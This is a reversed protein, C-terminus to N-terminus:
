DMGYIKIDSFQAVVKYQSEELLILVGPQNMPGWHNVIFYQIERNEILERRQDARLILYNEADTVSLKDEVLWGFHNETKEVLNVHTHSELLYGPWSSIIQEGPKVHEDLWNSIQRIRSIKWHDVRDIGPVKNGGVSYRYMDIPAVAIYLAIIVPMYKIISPVSQNEDIISIQNNPGALRQYSVYSEILLLWIFPMLACFYQTDSPTPMLNIVVFMGIFYKLFSARPGTMYRRLSVLSIILLLSQMSYMSGRPIRQGLLRLIVRFKQSLDGVMGEDSRLSHFGLNNFLFSSQDILIFYVNPSLAVLVGLGFAVLSLIKHLPPIPVLLVGIFFIPGLGLFMLRIDASLGFLLGSLFLVGLRLGNANYISLFLLVSGFLFLTSIAYTKAVVFWAFVFSSFTYLLVILLALATNRSRKKGYLFLMVGIAFALVVTFLRASLWSAGALYFWAAYIYLLAPMQPYFFDLYPKKGEAVLKASLLYFGEDGDVLRHFGMLLFVCAMVVLAIVAHTKNSFGHIARYFSYLNNSFGLLITKM